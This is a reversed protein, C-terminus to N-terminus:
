DLSKKFRTSAIILGLLTFGIMWLTDRWLDFLDAGRLVIGRIMRMFHTAPLVEAIWQAVVPMGEYPFMFGSLLISPLLIFVTMQMAQLQTNAITSIVLGLTLSAAIFLLTGLLIQAVSGNIPVGFIVHGLGLIIFVQILGVFIYPVIKAVMLEFSRVPTTILLELNGRERERVIAASTFLIMTMTLIVGLLGPVINVASRRSPNYYLAVEFTQTPKPRIQFDFDTLPMTQLGLIAASIMTDSGDVIWQGLPRGQAMRQTLDNPLILAARVIGDQIAQEAEEATAYRQTVSIVQTVKVSETLIRGATSESQDVVAVPIDRIDTNIAYGFLLLQILPIMVVMGFTIRDRSLQRFEKVMIAKMRYLANM